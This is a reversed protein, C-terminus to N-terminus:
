WHFTVAVESGLEYAIVDRIAGTQELNERRMTVLAQKIEICNYEDTESVISIKEVSLSKQALRGALYDAVTDNVEAIVLAATDQQAQKYSASAALSEKDPLNLSVGGHLFPSAVAMIMTMTFVVRMVGRLKEGPILADAVALATGVLCAILIAAKMTEM